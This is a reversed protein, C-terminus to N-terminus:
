FNMRGGGLKLDLIKDAWEQGEKGREEQLKPHLAKDIAFILTHDIDFVLNLKSEPQM